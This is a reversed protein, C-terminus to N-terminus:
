FESSVKVGKRDLEKAATKVAESLNSVQKKFDSANVGEKITKRLDAFGKELESAKKLSLFRRVAIEMNAKEGEFIGFYADSVIEMARDKKGSEYALVANNLAKEINGAIVVWGNQSAHADAILSFCSVLFTLVIFNMKLLSVFKEKMM